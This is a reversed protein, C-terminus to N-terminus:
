QCRAALAGVDGHCTVCARPNSRLQAACQQAFNPPHPSLGGGIGRAGHCAVCDREAHCSTCSTMSRRAEVAHQVPGRSWVDESPHFRGTARVVPASITAVGVRAHCEACFTQVTHCSTCRPEDRRAAQAHLTLFDNPHVSRPRVRGDHCDACDRERHCSACENGQDAGVWRHRVIWDADHNMGHMWAPPNMNGEPFHTHVVGDPDTLHCTRCAGQASPAAGGHCRMCSQMTPMDARTAVQRAPVSVHCDTCAMGRAVHANHSFRLRASVYASTPVQVQEGVQTAGIHCAACRESTPQRRDTAEAHCPNCSSEAPILSDSARRSGAANTHCRACPLARHAPHSHNMRLTINEEPFILPSPSASLAPTGPQRPTPAPRTQGFALPAVGLAFALLWAVCVVLSSRTTKM